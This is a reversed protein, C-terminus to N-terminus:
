FASVCRVDYSSERFTPTLMSLRFILSPVPILCMWFEIFFQLKGVIRRMEYPLAEVGGLHTGVSLKPWAQEFDFIARGDLIRDRPAPALRLLKTCFLHPGEILSGGVM